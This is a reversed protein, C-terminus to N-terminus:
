TRSLFELFYLRTQFRTRIGVPKMTLASFRDLNLYDLAKEPRVESGVKVSEMIIMEEIIKPDKALVKKRIGQYTDVPLMPKSASPKPLHYDICETLYTILNQPDPM